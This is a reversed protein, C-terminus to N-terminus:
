APCSFTLDPASFSIASIRPVIVFVYHHYVGATSRVNSNVVWKLDCSDVALNNAEFVVFRVPLNYQFWGRWIHWLFM